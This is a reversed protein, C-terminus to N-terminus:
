ESIGTTTCHWITGDSLLVDYEQNFLPGDSNINDKTLKAQYDGPIILVDIKKVVRASGSLEIKKGSLVADADLLVVCGPNACEPRMHTASIHIKIPFDASNPKETKQGFREKQGYVLSTSCLLLFLVAAIKKM